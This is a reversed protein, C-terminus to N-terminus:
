RNQMATVIDRVNQVDVVQGQSALDKVPTSMDVDVPLGLAAILDSAPFNCQDVIDQLTHRGKIESGPLVQGQELYTDIMERVASVEFGPLISEMDKLATEVPIEPPIGLLEYLTDKPIGYGDSLQQFTM